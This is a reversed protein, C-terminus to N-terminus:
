EDDDRGMKYGGFTIAIDGEKWMVTRWVEYYVHLMAWAIIPYTMFHHVVRVGSLGGFLSTTWDTTVHILWPWWGGVSSIGSELGQVYLQLGTLLQGIVMLHLLLFMTANFPDPRRSDFKKPRNLMVANLFAEQWREWNARTPRLETRATPDHRSFFYLYTIIIVSVDMVVAATFHVYRNWAMVYGAESSYFPKAIYMGTFAAAVISLANAWHVVRRMATMRYVRRWGRQEVTSTTEAAPTDPQDTGIEAM